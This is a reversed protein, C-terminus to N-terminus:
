SPFGSGGGVPHVIGPLQDEALVEEEQPWTLRAGGLLAGTVQGVLRLAKQVEPPAESTGLVAAIGRRIVDAPELGHEAMHELQDASFYASVKRGKGPVAQHAQYWAAKQASADITM